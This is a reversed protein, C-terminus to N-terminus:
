YSGDNKNAYYSEECVILQHILQVFKMKKAGLMGELEDTDTEDDASLNVLHKYAAIFPIDGLQKELHVRLAEIRYGLPDSPTLTIGPINQLFTPIARQPEEFNEDDDDSSEEKRIQRSVKKEEKVAKGQVFNNVVKPNPFDPNKQHYAMKSNTSSSHGSQDQAGSSQINPNPKFNKIAPIKEKPNSIDFNSSDRVNDVDSVESDKSEEEQDQNLQSRQNNIVKTFPTIHKQLFTASFENKAITSTLLKSIRRSLFEKELIKRMSPRKTPDKILMDALLDKLDQSYSPPIAPYTGRLIKLVLGKMSSADFAHKLTVMEYLICGLSWIDSKQNYPKEQCIEPSLYYPTGIATQACDYTHQLVRAIGFDGIKIQNTQTMFINQTKLDRHLIKRDHIHKIALAMQVFWDLIQDESYMVKGIKKQNAIKTYLDGGDAYDMVICLCKKDMFSEKYTIIYPHRMSKLVHVKMVYTQRDIVSQVLVAYGFSGKGIVKLKRYKEM